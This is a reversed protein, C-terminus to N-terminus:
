EESECEYLVATVRVGFLGDLADNEPNEDFVERNFEIGIRIPRQKYESLVERFISSEMFVFWEEMPKQKVDKQFYHERILNVMVEGKGSDPQTPPNSRRPHISNAFLIWM